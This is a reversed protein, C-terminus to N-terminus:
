GRIEKIRKKRLYRLSRYCVYLLISWIVLNVTWFVMSLIFNYAFTDPEVLTALWWSFSFSAIWGPAQFYWLLSDESAAQGLLILPISIVVCWLLRKYNQKQADRFTGNIAEM